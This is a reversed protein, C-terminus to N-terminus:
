ASDGGRAPDASVATGENPRDRPWLAYSFLLAISTGIVTDLLRYPATSAVSATPLGVLVVVAFAVAAGALVENVPKYATGVVVGGLALVLLVAGPLLTAALAVVVVGLLTAVVRAVSAEWVTKGAPLLVALAAVLMWLVDHNGTLEYALVLLALPIGRRVGDRTHQDATRLSTWIPRLLGQGTSEPLPAAPSRHYRLASGVAAVTWGLVAALVLLLGVGGPSALSRAGTITAIVLALVYALTAMAGLAAGVRGLVLGASTVISVALTVLAALWPVGSVEVGLWVMVSTSVAALAAMRRAIPPPGASGAAAVIGATLGPLLALALDGTLLQGAGIGVALGGAAFGVLPWQPPQGSGRLLAALRGGRISMETTKRGDVM